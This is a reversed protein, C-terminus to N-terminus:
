SDRTRWFREVVHSRIIEDCTGETVTPKLLEWCARHSVALLGIGSRKLNSARDSRSLRLACNRPLAVYSETAFTRNSLAQDIADSIRSLKLEVAVIRFHLPAWGNLKQFSGRDTSKVFRDRVLTDLERLLLGTEVNHSLENALRKLGISKGSDCDPIRSLILLRLLPGVPRTQGYSLRRKVKLPDLRVGVLDCIGWPLSFESKVMLGKRRLWRVVPAAM